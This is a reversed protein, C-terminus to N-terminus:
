YPLFVNRRSWSKKDQKCIQSILFDPSLYERPSTKFLMKYCEIVDEWFHCWFSLLAHNWFYLKLEPTFFFIVARRWQRYLRTFFRPLNLALKENSWISDNKYQRLELIQCNVAWVVKSILNKRKKRQLNRSFVCIIFKASTRIVNQLDHILTLISVNQTRFPHNKCSRYKKYIFTVYVNWISIIGLKDVISLLHQFFRKNM